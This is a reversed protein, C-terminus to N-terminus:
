LEVVFAPDFETFPQFEYGLPNRVVRTDGLMEDYHHHAHGHIWLFEDGILRDAGGVFYYNDPAGEYWSGVCKWSPLHHTVVVLKHCRDREGDIVSALFRFDKENEDFVWKKLGQIHKFDSWDKHTTDAHYSNPFWLTTGAFLVTGIQLTDRNLWHFHSFRKQISERVKRIQDRNFLYFEHNGAVFVIEVGKFMHCLEMLDNNLFPGCSYDGAVVLVDLPSVKHADLVRNMAEHSHLEKRERHIDSIVGIRM